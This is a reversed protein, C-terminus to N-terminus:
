RLIWLILNGLVIATLLGFLFSPVFPIGEKIKVKKLKGKHQMLMLQKIQKREIGLDGPGCIRKKGDYIEKAIWDGETLREPSIDKFMCASEVSKLFAHMWVSSLALIGLLFLSLRYPWETVLIGLLVSVICLGYAVYRFTRFDKKVSIKKFEKSFNKRNKVALYISFVIGYLGGLILTNMLFAALMSNASWEFGLLAGIGMLVKSDGGGWQGTYFMLWAFAFFIAFGILGSVIIHWDSYLISFFLRLGIGCGILSFSVWDPVERTRIDTYAGIILGIIAIGLLIIEYM